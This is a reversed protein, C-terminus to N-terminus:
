LKRMRDKLLVGVSLGYGVPLPIWLVAATWWIPRLGSGSELWVEDGYSCITLSSPARPSERWLIIM